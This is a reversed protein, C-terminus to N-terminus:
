HQEVDVSVTLVILSPPLSPVPPYPPSHTPSHPPPPPTRLVAVAEVKVVAGSSQGTTLEALQKVDVTRVILSASGLVAVVVEVKM